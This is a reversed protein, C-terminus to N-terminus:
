KLTTCSSHQNWHKIFSRLFILRKFWAKEISRHTQRVDWELEAENEGETECVWGCESINPPGETSHADDDDEDAGDGTTKMGAPNKCSSQTRTQGCAESSPGPGPEPGASSTQPITYVKSSDASVCYRAGRALPSGSHHSGSILCCVYLLIYSLSHCLSRLFLFSSHFCLHANAVSVRMLDLAASTPWIEPIVLNKKQASFPEAGRNFLIFQNGRYAPYKLQNRNLRSSIIVWNWDTMRTAKNFKTREINVWIDFSLGCKHTLPKLCRLPMRGEQEWHQASTWQCRRRQGGSKLNELSQSHLFRMCSNSHFWPSTVRPVAILHKFSRVM